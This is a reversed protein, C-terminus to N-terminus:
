KEQKARFVAELEDVLARAAETGRSFGAGGGYRAAVEFDLFSAARSALAEPIGASRLRSALDPSIVAAAPCHLHAALYEALAESRVIGPSGVCAHFAACAGAARVAQPDGPGRARKRNWSWRGLMAAVLLLAGSLLALLWKRSRGARPLERDLSEARRRREGGMSSKGTANEPPPRVRLPIPPTHVVRYGAPAETSFFAFPIAPVESVGEDLPALDYTVLRRMGRRDEITGYLHFSEFGHLRPAEFLELNGDGEISLSLEFSEGVELDLPHAQVRVSFRGVAGTFEQPRGEEPLPLIALALGKGHVLADKRDAAVRGQLLDEDFRTAYAFLLRSEPIVLEGAEAPLFSREIELVTFPWGDIVRDEVQRALAVQDNLVFTLLGNGPEVDALPAEDFRRFAGPLHDLWPAQVQVPVDLPRLFIPIMRESALRGEIGFRLKLRIPEQVFYTTRPTQLELFALNEPEKEPVSQRAAAFAGVSCLVGVWLRAIRV